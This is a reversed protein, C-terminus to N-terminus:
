EFLADNLSRIIESDAVSTIPSLGFSETTKNKSTFTKVIPAIKEPTINKLTKIPNFDNDKLFDVIPKFDTLYEDVLFNILFQLIEMIDGSVIYYIFSM